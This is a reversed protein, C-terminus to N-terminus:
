SARKSHVASSLKTQAKQLLREADDRLRDVENYFSQLEPKSVVWMAEEQIYQAASSLNHALAAQAWARLARLYKGIEHATLDGVYVSLAEDWDPQLDAFLQQWKQAAAIDGSIQLQGPRIVGDNLQADVFAQLEGRLTVDPTAESLSFLLRGASVQFQIPKNLPAIELRLLSSELAQLRAPVAPDMQLLRNLPAEMLPLWLAFSM